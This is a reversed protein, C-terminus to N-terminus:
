HRVPRPRDVPRLLRAVELEVDDPTRMELALRIMRSRELPDVIRAELWAALCLVGFLLLPALLGFAMM